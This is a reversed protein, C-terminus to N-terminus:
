TTSRSILDMGVGLLHQRMAEEALEANGIRIAGYIAKHQNVLRQMDVHAPGTIKRSKVLIPTLSDALKRLVKNGAARIVADHFLFDQHERVAVNKINAAMELLHQKLARLDQETARAAALAAARPEIMKRVELLEILDFDMEDLRPDVPWGGELNALSKVYTGDGRRSALVELVALAQIAERLAPRSISLTEALKRESPLRM